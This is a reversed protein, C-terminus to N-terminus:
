KEGAISRYIALTQEATKEWNFDLARQSGKTILDERLGEDSLLHIIKEAMDEPDKPDFFLAANQLIEPLAPAMSAAVPIRSVMAELLPLGFGERLSPFVFLTALRYICRLEREEM